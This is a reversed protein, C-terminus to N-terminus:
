RAYEVATQGDVPQAETDATALRSVFRYTDAILDHDMKMKDHGHAWGHPALGVPYLLLSFLPIKKKSCISLGTNGYERLGTIGYDRLGTIGYNRLETTGYSPAVVAIMWENNIVIPHAGAM